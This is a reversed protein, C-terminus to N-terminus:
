GLNTFHFWVSLRGHITQFLPAFKLQSRSLVFDFISERACRQELAALILDYDMGLFTEETDRGQVGPGRNKRTATDFNSDVGHKRPTKGGTTISTPTMIKQLLLISQIKCTYLELPDM